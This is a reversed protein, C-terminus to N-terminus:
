SGYRSKFRVLFLIPTSFFFRVVIKKISSPKPVIATACAAAGVIERLGRYTFAFSKSSVISNLSATVPNVTPSILRVPPLAESEFKEDFM